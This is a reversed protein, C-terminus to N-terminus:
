RVVFKKLRTALIEFLPAPTGSRPFPLSPPAAKWFAIEISYTCDNGSVNSELVILWNFVKVFGSFLTSQMFELFLM